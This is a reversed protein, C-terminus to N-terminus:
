LCILLRKIYNDKKSYWYAMRKLLKAKKNKGETFVNKIWNYFFNKIKDKWKELTKWCVKIKYQVSSTFDFILKEILDMDKTEVAENLL